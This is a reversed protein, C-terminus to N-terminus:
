PSVRWRLGIIATAAATEACFGGVPELKTIKTGMTKVIRWGGSMTGAAIVLYCIVEVWVPIHFTEVLYGNASSFLPSSEMTKQADNMGHSTSYIAASVLQLRRFILNAGGIRITRGHTINMVLVMM